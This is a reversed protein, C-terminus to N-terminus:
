AVDEATVDAASSLVAGPPSGFSTVVLSATGAVDDCPKKKISCRLDYEIAAADGLYGSFSHRVCMLFIPLYSHGSDGAFKRGRGNRECDECGRGTGCKGLLFVIGARGVGLDLDAVDHGVASRGGGVADDSAGLGGM